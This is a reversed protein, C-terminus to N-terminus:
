FIYVELKERENTIRRERERKKKKKKPFVTIKTIEKKLSM